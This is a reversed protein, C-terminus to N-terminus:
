IKAGWKVRFPVIKYKTGDPGEMHPSEPDLLVVLGGILEWPTTNSKYFPIRRLGDTQTADTLYDIVKDRLQALRYAEPDERTCCIAQLVQDSMTAITISGFQIALWRNVSTGQINPAALGKDFTLRVQESTFFSDVFYKKLSDRVNSERATSDLAM